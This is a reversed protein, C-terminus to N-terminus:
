AKKVLIDCIKEIDDRKDLAMIEQLLYQANEKYFETMTNLFLEEVDAYSMGDIDEQMRYLVSGDDLVITLDAGRKQPFVETLHPREEVSCLQMVKVISDRYPPDWSIKQYDGTVLVNAVGFPISMIAQVQSCVNTEATGAHHLTVKSVGIVIKKIRSLQPLEPLLKKAAQCPAQLKLCSAMAKYEVDLIHWKEGLDKTILEAYDLAGFAALLGDPDELTYKAAPLGTKALLAAEIGNRAGWGNQLVDEGTGESVWNNFGSASHCAFSVAHVTQERDLGLIKAATFAAGFPALVSTSRFAKPMASMRLAIGLRIMTEYGALVAEMVMKGSCGYEQALALAVPVVVSGAHCSGAKSIDNKSSVAGTVTNYFASDSARLLKGRGFAASSGDRERVYEWVAESRKDGRNGNLCCELADAICYKIKETVNEPLRELYIGSAFEALQEIISMNKM